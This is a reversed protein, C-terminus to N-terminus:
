FRWATVVHAETELDFGIIVAIKQTYFRYRWEGNEFEPPEQVLGARLVNEVDPMTLFDKAM